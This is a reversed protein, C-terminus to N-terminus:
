AFKKREMSSVLDSINTIRSIITPTASKLVLVGCSKTAEVEHLEVGLPDDDVGQAHRLAGEVLELVVHQEGVHALGPDTIVDDLVLDGAEGTVVGVRDGAHPSLLLDRM